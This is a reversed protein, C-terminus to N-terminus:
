PSSQACCVPERDTQGLGRGPGPERVVKHGHPPCLDPRHTPHTPPPTPHHLPRFILQVPLARQAKDAPLFIFGHLCQTSGMACTGKGESQGTDPVANKNYSVSSAPWRTKRKVQYKPSQDQHSGGHSGGRCAPDGRWGRGKGEKGKREQLINTKLVFVRAPPRAPSACTDWIRM